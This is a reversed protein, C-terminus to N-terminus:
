WRERAAVAGQGRYCLLAETKGPNWNIALHMNGFTVVLIRLLVQVALDLLRPSKSLLVLCEDDVFAADVLDELDTNDADVDNWFAGEPVRVRLCVEQKALEWTMIDLAISYVSNFTMGGLKCGQRGGTKSTILTSCNGVKFRAGEHLTRAMAAATPNVGWQEFLPGRDELYETIWEAAEKSVGLSQLYAAPDDPKRDGWGYVLQRIVKDFAKVLDVFLVFISLKLMAAAAVASRILHSAMDTGRGAVAGHQSTPMKETYVQDVANKIIGVLGKGAHDALLLGRSNDCDQPDSKQKYLSSLRGGRWQSPWSYNAAVRANVESYKCALAGGGAKLLEAPIEDLGVGKNNGLVAFAAETAAPGVDLTCPSPAQPRPAERVSCEQVIDGGFVSAYHEQWRADAEDPSETLSGDLRRVMPNYQVAAGALSKVIAYASRSDHSNATRDAKLALSDLYVKRDAELSPRAEAQLVFIAAYANAEAKLLAACTNAADLASGYAVWMARDGDRVAFMWSRFCMAVRWSYLSARMSRIARRIPAIQRVFSWTEM